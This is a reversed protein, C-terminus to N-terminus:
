LSSDLRLKLKADPERGQKDGIQLESAEMGTHDTSQTSSRCTGSGAEDPRNCTVVPGTSVFDDGAAVAERAHFPSGGHAASLSSLLVDVVALEGVRWTIRAIIKM